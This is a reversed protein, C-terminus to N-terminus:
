DINVHVANLQKVRAVDNSRAAEFIDWEGSQLGSLKM